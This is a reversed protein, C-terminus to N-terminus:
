ADLRPLSYDSMTSLKKCSIHSAVVFPDFSYISQTGDGSWTLSYNVLMLDNIDTPLNLYNVYNNSDATYGESETINADSVPMWSYFPAREVQHFGRNAFASTVRNYRRKWQEYRYQWGMIFSHDTDVYDGVEYSFLPQMGLHDYEPQYLDQRNTMVNYKPVGKYYNRDSEVSFIVMVVGHCPAKFRHSKGQMNGYGKGAIEALPSGNTGDYTNSTSIVEGIDIRGKDHGFCTIQHKPDHPVKFGFHALTQDDYHKKARGTISWLKENAFMARINATNLASGLDGDLQHTHPTRLQLKAYASTGVDGDHSGSANVGLPVSGSAPYLSGDSARHAITYQDAGLPYVASGTQGGAGGLSQQIATWADGSAAGAVPSLNTTQSLWDNVGQLTQHNSLNLPDVIPSVKVDTFYDNGLPRYRVGFMRMADVSSSFLENYEIVDTRQYFRDFNFFRQDFKERSDLRYYYEYICNYALYQYPFINPNIHGGSESDIRCPDFGFMDALRYVLMKENEGVNHGNQSYVTRSLSAADLIGNLDVVPLKDKIAVVFNSSFEDNIGYLFSGFPQFLLQMPVFFYEIHTTLKCMAASQLPMTRLFYNFGLEVTEGANLFDHFVPLLHATTCTFGFDHSLDHSHTPLKARYEPMEDIKAM